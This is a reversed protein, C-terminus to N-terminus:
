EPRRASLRSTYGAKPCCEKKAMSRITPPDTRVPAASPHALKHIKQLAGNDGICFILTKETLKHKALTQMVLGVEEGVALLM